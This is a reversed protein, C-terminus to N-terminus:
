CFMDVTNRILMKFVAGEGGEGRGRRERERGDERGRGERKEGEERM